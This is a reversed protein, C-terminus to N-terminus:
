KNIAFGVNYGSGHGSRGLMPVATAMLKHLHFGVILDKHHGSLQQNYQM